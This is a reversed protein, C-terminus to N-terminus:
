CTAPRKELFENVQPLTPIGARGGLHRAKMAAVASAFEAVRRTTWGQLLGFMFAGHYVDGCGTTDKVEVQFAPQHFADQKTVCFSGRVGGTVVVIKDASIRQQRDFMARASDRFDARGTRTEAFQQSAIIVDAADVFPTMDRDSLEADVGIWMGDERAWGIAQLAAERQFGDVYLARACTVQERSIDEPRLTPVNEDTWFINRHGAAPTVIIYAFIASKGPDMVVGSVDVGDKELADRVFRGLDDDGLRGLYRTRAGLRSLAVLATGVLGGGQRTFEKVRMKRDPGPFQDVVALWDAAACGIGVVDLPKSSM